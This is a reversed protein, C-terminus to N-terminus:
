LHKATALGLSVAMAHPEMAAQSTVRLEAQNRQQPNGGDGLRLKWVFLLPVLMYLLRM